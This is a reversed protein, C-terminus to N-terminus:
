HHDHGTSGGRSEAVTTLTARLDSVKPPKSLLHDVHPPVSEERRLTEGWGTLLIVPTEPSTQKVVRAVERGDMGPMGLDTIVASFPEQQIQAIRFATLGAVGGEAVTVLHGESQLVDQLSQRLLPDDDIVLIRLPSAVDEVEAPPARLEGDDPTISFHLRMTTGQGVASEITLQAAHRELVGYVMALGLGTGREGKTTYFPELCRQRTVEDMGVGTDIVDVLVATPTAQTQLTLVGGHPMADIANFVLNILAERLESEVGRVRPLNEHLVTHVTITCGRQQPQDRWRARTIEIVQSVTQNLDVPLAEQLSRPPRYVEGLRAITHAVDQVVQQVTTLYERACASLTPDSRLLVEVYLSAPSLANNIDHAIGSAMQELARLREQQVVVQQTQQLDDYAQQLQTYLRAHQVAIAAQDAFALALEVAAPSFHRGTRGHLTLTGLLEDGAILPVGLYALLGYRRRFALNEPSIRDDQSVDDIIVPQRNTAVSGGLSDDIQLRSRLTMEIGEGWFSALVLDDGERQRVIAVPVDLLRAAERAITDLLFPLASTQGIQKNIDLLTRLEAQRQEIEEQARKHATIDRQVRQFLEGNELAQAVQAALVMGQAVDRESFREPNESDGFTLAGIVKGTRDILPLVLLAQIDLAQTIPQLAFGSQRVRNRFVPQRDGSRLTQATLSDDDNLRICRGHFPATGAGFAAMLMAEQEGELVQWFLGSTYGQARGIAELLSPRLVDPQLSALAVRAVETQTRLFRTEAILADEVWGPPQPALDM